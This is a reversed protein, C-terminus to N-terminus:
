SLKSTARRSTQAQAAAITHESLGMLRNKLREAERSRELLQHQPSNRQSTWQRGAASTKDKSPEVKSDAQKTSPRPNMASLDVVRPSASFTLLDRYLVKSATDIARLSKPPKWVISDDDLPDIAPKVEDAPDDGIESEEDSDSVAMLDPLPPLSQVARILDQGKLYSNESRLFRVTGRLSDLQDVLYSTELNGEHHLTEAGEAPAAGAAPRDPASAAATKLRSIEEQLEEMERNQSDIAESYATEQKKIKALEEELEVITDAHKKVTESRREMTEIKVKSEQLQQDRQRISRMLSQLEENMQTLKHEAELNVAAKAKIDAVRVTWPAEGTVICGGCFLTGSDSLNETVYSVLSSYLSKIVHDAEMAGPMFAAADKTLTQIVDRVAAWSSLEKTPMASRAIETAASLIVSLQFSSKNARVDEIYGGVRQAFQIGFELAQTVANSLITLQPIVNERLAAGERLLDDIRKSIKRAATKASRTSELLAVMPSVLQSQVDLDEEEVVIEDDRMANEIVHKSLGIAAIFSDLDYEVSLIKDLQREGLDFTYGSFYSEALHEFQGLMKQVDSGCEFFRFEERRLTDIHIDLRREMPAVEPLLKGVNIYFEGDCKRLIASFRKCLTAVHGAMGRMECVGVLSSDSIDAYLAEPMGYSIAVMTNILDLKYSLRQFLMYASAADRDNDVYAQPLYPQVISLLERAQAADLRKIELDITKAQNKTTNSQLKMNLALAAAAQTAQNQSEVRHSHSQERATDLESQLTAVLERFQVITSDYDEVSEQLIDIARLQAHIQMEKEDIDEQLTRETEVHNEELEDSLEKLAELDEIEARMQEMKESMELTRETLQVVLDEAGLADDLQQKLDDVQNEANELRSLTQEFQSQMEDTAALEHELDAIKRRSDAEAEHTIERLKILAEKLRENQKELQIYDLSSKAGGEAGEGTVTDSEGAVTSPSLPENGLKEKLVNLEVEKEARAEKEAELDLEAAEAKEEALEKDMMAMELQDSQDQLRGELAEYEVKMDAVERKYSGIEAQLSQLKAQLKPKFSLFAEAETLRAELERIRQADESRKTELIRLKIRTESEDSAATTTSPPALTTSVPSLQPGSTSAKLSEPDERGLRSLNLSTVRSSGNPIHLPSPRAHGNPQASVLEPSSSVAAREPSHSSPIPPTSPSAPKPLPSAPVGAVSPSLPVGTLDLSNRFSRSRPTPLRGPPLGSTSAALSAVPRLTPQRAPTAPAAPPGMRTPVAPSHGNALSPSANRPSPRAASAGGPSGSRSVGLAAVAPTPRTSTSRALAAIPSPRASAPPEPTTAPRPVVKVQSPRVFSGHNPECEFYKVGQVSGDNKGNADSLEVGIWKGTGFKTNGAFRVYGFGLKAVEVYAGLPIDGPVVPPM